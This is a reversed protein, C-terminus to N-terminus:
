DGGERVCFGFRVEAHGKVAPRELSFGDDDGAGPDTFDVGGERRAGHREEIVGVSEDIGADRTRERFIECLAVDDDRGREHFVIHVGGREPFRSPQERDPPLFQHFEGGVPLRDRRQDAGDLRASLRRM